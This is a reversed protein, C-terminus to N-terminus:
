EPFIPNISFHLTNSTIKKGSALTGEVYWSYSQNCSLKIAANKPYHVCNGTVEKQWILRHNEECKLYVCYHEVDPTSQWRFEPLLSLIDNRPTLARIFYGQAAQNSQFRSFPMYALFLLLIIAGISVFIQKYQPQSRFPFFNKIIFNIKLLLNLPHSRPVDRQLTGMKRTQQWIAQPLPVTEERLHELVEFVLLVRRLCKECNLTHELLAERDDAPLQNDVFASIQDDSLCDSSNKSDINEPIRVISNKIRLLFQLKYYCKECRSVHRILESSESSDLENELFYFFDVNSPCTM